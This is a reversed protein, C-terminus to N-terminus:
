NINFLYQGPITEETGDSNITTLTLAYEGSPLLSAPIEVSVSESDSAVVKVVKEETKNDLEARYSVGSKSPQPLLLKLKLFGADAPLQVKPVELSGQQRNILQSNLTPGTITPGASRSIWVFAVIVVLVVSTASAIAWPQRKLFLTIRELLTPQPIPGPIPAPQPRNISDLAMVFEYRQQGEKSALYHDQFWVKEKQGLEGACYQEVLEDKSSEFEDFFDDELMLREEIKRQEDDGLRGLLYDRIIDQDNTSLAM